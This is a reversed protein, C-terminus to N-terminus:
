CQCTTDDEPCLAALSTSYQASEFMAEVNPNTKYCHCWKACDWEPCKKPNCGDGFLGIHFTGLGTSYALEEETAVALDASEMQVAASAMTAEATRQLCISGGDHVHDHTGVAQPDSFYASGGNVICGVAWEPGADSAYPTQETEQAARACVQIDDITDANIDECTEGAQARVSLIQKECLYGGNPANHHGLGNPDHAVFFASGPTGLLSLSLPLHLNM